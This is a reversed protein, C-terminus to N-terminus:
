SWSEFRLEPRCDPRSHSYHRLGHLWRLPELVYQLWKPGTCSYECMTNKKGIKNIVFGMPIFVVGAIVGFIMPNIFTQSTIQVVCAPEELLDSYIVELSSPLIPATINASSSGIAECLRSPGEPHLNYNCAWTTSCTLSGCPSVTQTVLRLCLVYLPLSNDHEPSSSTCVFPSNTALHEEDRRTCFEKEGVRASLAVRGCFRRNYCVTGSIVEPPEGSNDAYIRRLIDLAEQSRGTVLLYKPSEPLVRAMYLVTILGPLATVIVFLRWSRYTIWPLEWHGRRRSSSGRWAKFLLLQETSSSTINVKYVLTYYHFVNDGHETSVPLITAGLM